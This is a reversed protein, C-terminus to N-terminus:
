RPVKRWLANPTANARSTRRRLAHVVAAPPVFQLGIPALVSTFRDGLPLTGRYSLGALAIIPLGLRAFLRSAFAGGFVALWFGACGITARSIKHAIFDRGAQLNMLEPIRPIADTFLGEAIRLRRDWQQRQSVAKETTSIGPVLGVRLGQSAFNAALEFDDLAATPRIPTLFTSRVAIFEGVVALTDNNYGARKILNELRWFAGETGGQEGKVASVLHRFQLSAITRNLWDHPVITCNADTFIVIEATAIAMARNCAAAKGERVTEVVIDAAAARAAAATEPDSAIVIVRVEGSYLGSASRIESIKQRIAGSELYAPIVIDISPSQLRPELQLLPASPRRRVAVRAVPTLATILFQAAGVITLITAIRAM